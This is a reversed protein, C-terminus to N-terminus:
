IAKMFIKLYFLLKSKNKLYLITLTICLQMAEKLIKFLFKIIKM